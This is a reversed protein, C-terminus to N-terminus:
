NIDVSNFEGAIRNFVLRVFQTSRDNLLQEPMCASISSSPLGHRRQRPARWSHCGTHLDFILLWVATWEKEAKFAFARPGPESFAGSQQPPNGGGSQLPWWRSVSPAELSTQQARGQTERGWSPCSHHLPAVSDSSFCCLEQQWHPPISDTRLGSGARGSSSGAPWRDLHRWCLELLHHRSAGCRWDQHEPVGVQRLVLRTRWGTWAYAATIRYNLQLLCRNGAM